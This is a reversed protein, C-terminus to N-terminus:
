ATAAVEARALWADMLIAIATMTKWAVTGRQGLPDGAAPKPNVVMPTIAQDGKLSVIGYADRGLYLIPYVDANTGSTSRMAGKAGGADAFPAYITSTLYRVREVAGIENEWPTVTGYQKTPIFGSMKRIDTELDPHVLGIFAAEVPETRFLVASKVVQTIPKANQRTLGTTVQRQLDLTIPTNVAVRTTGNAYFVNTGAKLVNYRFTELTQAASEAMVEIMQALVNDEHTMDIVDTLPVYDGLQVLTVTYDHFTLRKGAPTVGETLPTLSLVNTFSNAPNGDGAAGLAGQLFYRRFKATKTSRTPIVTPTQGFKELNLMPAARALFKAVSFAVMRPTLDGYTMTSM